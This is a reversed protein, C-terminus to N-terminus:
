LDVEVEENLILKWRSDKEYASALSALLPKSSPDFLVATKVGAAIPELARAQKEHHFRDLLYGLRRVCSTEYHTALQALRRPDAKDGISMVIQAVGNMGGAKQSYRAADLLTLEIGAAKAFGASTKIQGLYPAQNVALFTSATQTLYQVRHRGIEFSRLQRPVVVQFVMAAQHSSGHLAAARLLSVRYDLSLYRMLPDIWQAPDPAGGPQDEPRLIVYFGKHPSVIRKRKALRVLAAVLGSEQLSTAQAADGRSFTARGVILQEDVFRDLASM